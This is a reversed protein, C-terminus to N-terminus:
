VLACSSARSVAAAASSNHVSCFAPSNTRTVYHQFWRHNLTLISGVDKTSTSSDRWIGLHAIDNDNGRRKVHATTTM